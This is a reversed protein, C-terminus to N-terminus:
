LVESLDFGMVASTSKILPNSLFRLAKDKFSKTCDDCVPIHIELLTKNVMIKASKNDTYKKCTKCTM